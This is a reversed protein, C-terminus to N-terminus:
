VSACWKSWVEKKKAIQIMELPWKNMSKIPRSRARKGDVFGTVVLGEFDDKRIVHGLFIFQMHVIERAIIIHPTWVITCTYVEENTVGANWLIKLMIRNFWTEMAELKKMMDGSITWTECGNWIITYCELVRLM